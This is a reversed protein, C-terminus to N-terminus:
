SACLCQRIAKERHSDKGLEYWKPHTDTLPRDMSAQWNTSLGYVPLGKQGAIKGLWTDDVCYCHHMLLDLDQETIRLNRKVFIYGSYGTPSNQADLTTSILAHPHLKLGELLMELMTPQYIIDDDVICVTDDSRLQDYVGLLKTAPGLDYCRNIIVKSEQELWRPVQYPTNTRRYVDPINVVIKDFDATQNKLHAIVSQFFESILREPMVTMSIYIRGTSM